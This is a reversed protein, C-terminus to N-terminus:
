SSIKGIIDHTQYLSLFRTFVQEAFSRKNLHWRCLRVNPFPGNKKKVFYKEIIWFRQFNSKWPQFFFEFIRIRTSNQRVIKKTAWNSSNSKRTELHGLLQQWRWKHTPVVFDLSNSITPASIKGNLSSTSSCNPRSLFWLIPEISFVIRQRIKNLSQNRESLKTRHKSVEPAVDLFSILRVTSLDSECYKLWTM